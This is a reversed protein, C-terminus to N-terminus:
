TQGQHKILRNKIVKSVQYPTTEIQDLRKNTLYTFEPLHYSPSPPPLTFQETFYDHLLEAKSEDTVYNIANDILTPIPKKMKNGYLQKAISWFTKCSLNPDNLKNMQNLFFSKKLKRFEHKVKSRYMNRIQKHNENRTRNFTGSWRNRLRILKRLYPTVWPKDKTRIRVKRVPIYKKATDLFNTTFHMVTDDIDASQEFMNMWNVSSLEANLGEWDANKYHWVDRAIPPPKYKLISFKAYVPVHHLECIPLLTGYDFAYGPSDTIILDLIYASTQTFHTPHEIIQFLNNCTVLDRLKNGLESTPHDEYFLVARDNFDGTLVICDPKENYMHDLCTQIDLTFNNIEEANQGPPQYCLCVIAKDSGNSGCRVEICLMECGNCSELDMRRVCPIEQKVYILLGGGRGYGRDKRFCEYNEIHIDNYMHTTNLWTESLAIIDFNHEYVLTTCIEDLKSYQSLVCQNVNVNALLSQINLHCLTLNSEAHEVM